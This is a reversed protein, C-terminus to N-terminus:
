KPLQNYIVDITQKIAYVAKDDGNKLIEWLKELYEMQEGPIKTIGEKKMNAIENDIFRTEKDFDLQGEEVMRKLGILEPESYIDNDNDMTM